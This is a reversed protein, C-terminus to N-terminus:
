RSRTTICTRLPPRDELNAVTVGALWFAAKPTEIPKAVCGNVQSEHRTTRAMAAEVHTPVHQVTRLQDTRTAVTFQM